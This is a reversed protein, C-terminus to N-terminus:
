GARSTRGGSSGPLAALPKHFFAQEPPLTPQHPPHPPTGSPRYNPAPSKWLRPLLVASTAAAPAPCSRRHGNQKQKDRNGPHPPTGPHVSPDAAAADRDLVYTFGKPNRFM